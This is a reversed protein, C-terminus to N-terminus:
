DVKTMMVLITAPEGEGRKILKMAIDVKREVQNIEKVSNSVSNNDKIQQM